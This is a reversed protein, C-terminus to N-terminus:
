GPRGAVRPQPAAPVGPRPDRGPSGPSVNTPPRLPRHFPRTIIGNTVGVIVDPAGYSQQLNDAAASQARSRETLEGVTQELSALRNDLGAAAERAQAEAIEQDTVESLTQTKIIKRGSPPANNSLVLNGNADRYMYYDGAYAGGAAVALFWAFFFIMQLSKRSDTLGKM